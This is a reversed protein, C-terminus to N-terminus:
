ERTAFVALFQLQQRPCEPREDEPSRLVLDGGIQRRFRLLRNEALQFPPPAGQCVALSCTSSASSRRRWAAQWGASTSGSLFPSAEAFSSSSRGRSISVISSPCLASTKECNVLKRASSRSCSRSRPM